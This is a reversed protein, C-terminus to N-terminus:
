KERVEDVNKEIVEFSIAWVWPDDDWTQGPKTYISDWLNRFLKVATNCEM